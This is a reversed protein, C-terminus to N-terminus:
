HTTIPINEIKNVMPNMLGLAKAADITGKLSFEPAAEANPPEMRIPIAAKTAPIMPEIGDSFAKKSNTTM